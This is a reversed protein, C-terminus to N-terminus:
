RKSTIGCHHRDCRRCVLGHQPLEEDTLTVGEAIKENGDQDNIPGTFVDWEGGAIKASAEDITAQASDANLATLTDLKVVDSGWYNEATWTGDIIAQVQAIYYPAWNWVPATLYADPAVNPTPFHYGICYAGAEEATLQTSTTDQHQALVDCGKNLLEQAAAKELTADGWQGTWVVEVTADPNVSKVGLTFANIGRIVEPIAMAAVYGIKNTETKMGAAIGSLYRPQYIRGFYNVFNDGDKYGSAHFFYLDPYDAAVKETWDGFGFSTTFIVNCGQDILDRIAKECDASEPVNELYMTEVGLTEELEIRANDHSNTWGEDEVSGIYVFGVKIDEATLGTDEGETETEGGCATLAFVLVLAMMLVFLKKKM